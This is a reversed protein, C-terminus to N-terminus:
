ADQLEADCQECFLNGMGDKYGLAYEGCLSCYGLVLERKDM